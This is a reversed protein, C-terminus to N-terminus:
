FRGASTCVLRALEGQSVPLWHLADDSLEAATSSHSPTYRAALSVRTSIRPAESSTHGQKLRSRPSARGLPPRVGQRGARGRRRGEAPFLGFCGLNCPRCWRAGGSAGRRMGPGPCHGGGAGPPVRSRETRMGWSRSRGGAAQRCASLAPFAGPGAGGARPGRGQGDKGRRARPCAARSCIPRRPPLRPARTVQRRVPPRSSPAVAGAALGGRAKSGARSGAPRLGSLTKILLGAVKGEAEAETAAM